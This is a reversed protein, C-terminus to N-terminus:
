IFLVIYEMDYAIQINKNEDVKEIRKLTLVVVSILFRFYLIVKNISKL